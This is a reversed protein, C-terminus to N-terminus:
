GMKDCPEDTQRPDQISGPNGLDYTDDVDFFRQCGWDVGARVQFRPGFRNKDATLTVTGNADGEPSRGLGLFLAAPFAKGRADRVCELTVTDNDTAKDNAQTTAFIVAGTQEAVLSLKEATAELDLRDASCIGDLSDVIVLPTRDSETGLSTLYDKLKPFFQDGSERLDWPVLKGGLHNLHRRNIHSYQEGTAWATL